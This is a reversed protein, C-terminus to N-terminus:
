KSSLSRAVSASSGEPHHTLYERAAAKASTRTGVRIEAKLLRARAGEAMQGRPEQRLYTRYWRIATRDDGDIEQAIRGLTFAAVAANPHSVHRERLHKLVKKAQPIAGGLRAADALLLLDSASAAATVVDFGVRTAEEVAARYQGEEALRRWSLATSPQVKAPEMGSRIEGFGAEGSRTDGPVTKLWAQEEERLSDAADKSASRDNRERIDRLVDVGNPTKKVRVATDPLPSRAPRSTDHGRPAFSTDVHQGAFLHQQEVGSASDFLVVSGDTVQVKLRQHSPNWDVTFSAANRSALRYPGVHIAASHEADTSLRARLTGQELTLAVHHPTAQLVRARAGPELTMREAEGAHLVVESNAAFLRQETKLASSDDDAVATDNAIATDSAIATNAVAASVKWERSGVVKTVEKAGLGDREVGPDAHSHYAHPPEASIEIAAQVESAAGSPSASSREFLIFAVAAAAVVGGGLTMAKLGIFHFKAPARPQELAALRLRQAAIRAAGPGDGVERAIFAGWAHAQGEQNVRVASDRAVPFRDDDAM